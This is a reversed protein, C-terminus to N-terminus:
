IAVKDFPRYGFRKKTRLIIEDCDNLKNMYFEILTLTITNTLEAEKLISWYLKRKSSVTKFKTYEQVSM